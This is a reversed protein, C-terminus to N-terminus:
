RSVLMMAMFEDFCIYGDCNTDVDQMIKHATQPGVANRLIGDSVIKMVEAECLMGDGNCDFVNFAVRLVDQTLHKQRDFTAALFASYTICGSGDADLERITDLCATVQQESRMGCRALGDQMEEVSLTGNGDTDLSDFLIRLDKIQADSLHSAILQLSMKKLKSEYFFGTLNELMVSPLEVDLGRPALLHLWPEELAQQANYRYSVRRNLLRRILEKAENSIDAWTIATLNLHDFKIRHFTEHHTAGIFPPHGSLIVHLIVGCSWLDCMRDYKRDVVQPALYMPTGVLTTHIQGLASPTSVGFDVVKL